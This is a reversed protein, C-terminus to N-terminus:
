NIREKDIFNFNPVNVNRVDIKGTVTDAILTNKMDQLALIKEETKNIIDKIQVCTKDLYKVIKRQEEIPPILIFADKLMKQTISYVKVGNVKKHIQYRWTSSKFLYAFYKNNATMNNHAIISHYGAFIKDNSDVYVCNGCSAIDESTDAFIFDGKKVLSNPNTKLYRKNIYRILKKNLGIGSNEKSHIQGYNIVAIGTAELNEKTISLGKRFSFIERLRKLQWHTPFKIDWRIDNTNIFDVNNVGKIVFNDIINQNMEELLTVKDKYKTILKNINSVKWDLFYVIQNQEERPPIPLLITKMESYRTTWLDSVIGKGNRYYEESFPQSRLLYHVYKNNWENRPTLVINVLSVSGELESVGCSGKRDSRSNIVFDGKCVLKRNDNANTKAATSLQPVIGKKTVSLPSYVKDSVITKRESFLLGIKKCKWHSPLTNLWKVKSFKYKAYKQM